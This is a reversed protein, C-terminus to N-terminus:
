STKRWTGATNGVIIYTQNGRKFSFRLLSKSLSTKLLLRDWCITTGVVVLLSGAVTLM